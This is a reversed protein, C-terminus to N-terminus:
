IAYKSRINEIKEIIIDSIRKVEANFFKKSVGLNVNLYKTQKDLKYGYELRNKSIRKFIGVTDGVKREDFLARYTEGTWVGTLDYPPADFLRQKQWGTSKLKKKRFPLNVSKGATDFIKPLENKKWNKFTINLQEKYFKGQKIEIALQGLDYLFNSVDSIELNSM